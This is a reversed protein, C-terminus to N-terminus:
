RNIKLQNLYVYADKVKTIQKEFYDLSHSDSGVFFKCGEKVLQSIVPKSPFPRGIPFKEGSINYEIRMNNKICMRGLELM